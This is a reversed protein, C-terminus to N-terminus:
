LASEPVHHVCLISYGCLLCCKKNFYFKYMMCDMCKIHVTGCCNRYRGLQTDIMIILETFNGNSWLSMEYGKAMM